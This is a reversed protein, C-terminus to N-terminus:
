AHLGSQQTSGSPPEIGGVEVLRCFLPGWAPGNNGAPPCPAASAAQTQSVVGLAQVAPLAKLPAGVLEVGAGADFDSALRERTPFAQRQGSAVAYHAEHRRCQCPAYGQDQRWPSRCM